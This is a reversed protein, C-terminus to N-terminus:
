PNATWKFTSMIEPAWIKTEEAQNFEAPPSTYNGLDAIVLVFTVNVCSGYWTTSYSEWEYTSGAAVGSGTEQLFTIGNLTVDENSILAGYKSPCSETGTYTTIEAYKQSLNTGPAMPLNIRAHAPDIMEVISGPPYQISFNFRANQYTQWGAPSLQTPVAVTPTVTSYGAKVVIEVWFPDSASPGIGFVTGSANSLAWYGRYTGATDPATLTVSLDVIEGSAVPSTLNVVTPAGMIDGSHLILKYSTTWTCAGINKIRWSKTFSTYPAFATGDPVSVDGVLEARDCDGPPPGPPPTATLNAAASDPLAPVATWDFKVELTGCASLTLTVSSFLLVLRKFM